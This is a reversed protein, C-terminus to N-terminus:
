PSVRDPDTSQAKAQREVDFDQVVARPDVVVGESRLVYLLTRAIIKLDLLLSWNEVYWADAELRKDWPLQNRGCVQAWGTIGPRVTHRSRERETYYPLYRVLLPRPGVFSVDGRLVNWIQPLEDLSTKRLLRGLPTLRQTDPMREEGHRCVLMTRFKYLTFVRENLGIREQRFIAPGSSAMRVLLALVLMLPATVVALVMAATFDICRKVKQKARYRDSGTSTRFPTAM